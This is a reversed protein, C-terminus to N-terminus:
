QLIRADLVLHGVHDKDKFYKSSFTALIEENGTVLQM